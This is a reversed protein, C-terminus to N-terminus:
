NGSVRKARWVLIRRGAWVVVAAIVGWGFGGVASRRFMQGVGAGGSDFLLEGSAAVVVSVVTVAAVIVLPHWLLRFRRALVVYAATVGLMLTLGVFANIGAQLTM